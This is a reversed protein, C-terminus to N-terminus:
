ERVIHLQERSEKYRELADAERFKEAALFRLAEIIEENTVTPAEAYITPLLGFIDV